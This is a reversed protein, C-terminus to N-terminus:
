NVDGKAKDIGRFEPSGMAKIFVFIRSYVYLVGINILLQAHVSSAGRCKGRWSGFIEAFGYGCCM